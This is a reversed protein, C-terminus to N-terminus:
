SERVATATSEFWYSGSHVELAIVPKNALTTSWGSSIGPVAHAVFGHDRDWIVTEGAEPSRGTTEVILTTAASSFQIIPVALSVVVGIPITVGLSMSQSSPDVNCSVSINGRHTLLWGSISNLDPSALCAPAVVATQFGPGSARIGLIRHMIWGGVSAYMPNNHSDMTNLNADQWLEWVTTANQSAMYGWSPYTPSTVMTYGLDTGGHVVRM